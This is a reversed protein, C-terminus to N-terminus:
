PEMSKGAKKNVLLAYGASGAVIVLVFPWFKVAANNGKPPETSSYTRRASSNSSFRSQRQATARILRSTTNSSVTTFYASSPSSAKAAVRSISAPASRTAVQRWLMRQM